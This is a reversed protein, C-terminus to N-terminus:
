VRCSFVGLPKYVPQSLSSVVERESGFQSGSFSGTLYDCPLLFNSIIM